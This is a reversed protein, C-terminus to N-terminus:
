GGDDVVGGDDRWGRGGDGDVDGGGMMVVVREVAELLPELDLGFLFEMAFPVFTALDWLDFHRAHWKRHLFDDWRLIFIEEYHWTVPAVLFYVLFVTKVIRALILLLLLLLLFLASSLSLPLSPLLSRSRSLSLSLSLSLLSRDNYIAFTFIYIITYYHM